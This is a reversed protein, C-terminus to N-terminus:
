AFATRVEVGNELDYFRETYFQVGFRRLLSFSGLLHLLHNPDRKSPNKFFENPNRRRPEPHASSVQFAPSLGHM